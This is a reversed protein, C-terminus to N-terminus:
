LLCTKIVKQDIWYIKHVIKFYEKRFYFMQLMSVVPHIIQIKAILLNGIDFILSRNTNVLPDWLSGLFLWLHISICAIFKLIDWISTRAEYEGFKREQITVYHFNVVKGFLYCVTNAQIFNEAQTLDM